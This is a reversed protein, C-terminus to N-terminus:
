DKRLRLTLSYPTDVTDSINLIYTYDGSELFNEGVYDIPQLISTSGGIKTEIYAYRYAKTGSKYSTTSGAGINGYYIEADPFGVYLSDMTFRSSNHIRINVEDKTNFLSDCNSIFLSIFIVLISLLRLNM